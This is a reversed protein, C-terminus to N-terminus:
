VRPPNSGARDTTYCIRSWPVDKIRHHTDVSERLAAARQQADVSDVLCKVLRDGLQLWVSDGKVPNRFDLNPHKEKVHREFEVGVDRGEWTNATREVTSITVGCRSCNVTEVPPAAGAHILFVSEDAKM